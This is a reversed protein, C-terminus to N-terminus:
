RVEERAIMVDRRDGTWLAPEIHEGSDLGRLDNMPPYRGPTNSIM